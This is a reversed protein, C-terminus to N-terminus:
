VTMIGSPHLRPAPVDSRVAAHSAADRLRTFTM